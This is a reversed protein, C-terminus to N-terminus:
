FARYGIAITVAQGILGFTSQLLKEKRSTPVYFIDGAQLPVDPQGHKLLAILNVRIQQRRGDVTRIIEAQKANAPDKTSLGQSLAVLRLVTMPRESTLPFADPKEVAGVAYVYRAPTVRVVEGGRLLPNEAPNASNIVADLPFQRTSEGDPGASTVLVESGATSTPGGARALAEILRLPRTAEIVVPNKVSGAVVIPRSMVQRVVVRVVPARALGHRRLDLILAHSIQPATMGAVELPRPLMPLRIEGERSVRVQSTLEPMQFVFVALLDDPGVQYSDPVEPPTLDAQMQYPQTVSPAPATASTTGPPPAVSQGALGAALGLVALGVWWGKQARM